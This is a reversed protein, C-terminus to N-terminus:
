VYLDNGANAAERLKEIRAPIDSSKFVSSGAVFVDAGARAIKQINEANIGGDVEILFSAHRKERQYCAAEIKQYTSEIFTQGGFGPEVSMILLLDIDSLIPLLHGMPTAPNIAVGAKLGQQKIKQITRHLHICVEQHVTLMDAGAEAFSEIFLDPQEIMLHVDIFAKGSQAAAAVFDAGFSINPVFHGDM